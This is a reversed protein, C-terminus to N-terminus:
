RSIGAGNKLCQDLKEFLVSAGALMEQLNERGRGNQEIAGYHYAECLDLIQQLERLLASDVGQQQLREALEAYVLGGPPM